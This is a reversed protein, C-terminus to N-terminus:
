RNCWSSSSHAAGVSWWGFSRAWATVASARRSNKSWCFSTRYAGLEWATAASLPCNQHAGSHYARPQPPNSAATFALSHRETLLGLFDLLARLQRRTAHVKNDPLEM